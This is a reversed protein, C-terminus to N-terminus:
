SYKLTVVVHLINTFIRYVYKNRTIIDAALLSYLLQLLSYLYICKQIVKKRITLRKEDLSGYFVNKLEKSISLNM